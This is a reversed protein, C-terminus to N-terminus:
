SAVRHEKAQSRRAAHPSGRGAEKTTLANHALVSGWPWSRSVHWRCLTGLHTVRFILPTKTGAAVRTPSSASHM